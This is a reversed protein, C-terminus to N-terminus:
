ASATSYLAPLASVIHRDDIHDTLSDNQLSRCLLGRKRNYLFLTSSARLDALILSLFAFISSVLERKAAMARGQNRGKCSKKKSVCVCVRDTRKSYDFRFFDGWGNCKTSLSCKDIIKSTIHPWYLKCTDLALVFWHVNGCHM